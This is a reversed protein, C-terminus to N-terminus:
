HLIRPVSLTFAPIKADFETGDDAVMQYSGEMIGVDTELMAGSTYQFGEGPQLHPTAGVVGDGRVEQIRGNADKIIWHRTLLTAPVAGQNHITITYAFVFRNKEPVSESEVYRTKVHIGIKYNSIKGM